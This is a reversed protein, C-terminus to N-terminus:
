HLIERFGSLVLQKEGGHLMIKFVPHGAAPLYFRDEHFGLEFENKGYEEPLTYYMESDIPEQLQSYM